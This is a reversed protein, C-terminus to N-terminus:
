ALQRRRALWLHLLLGAACLLAGTWILAGFGLGAIVGAMVPTGLTNGLNGMQAMAGNARARDAMDSNLEPVLAFTAGQILGFAAALAYATVSSVGTAWLLVFCLACLAFGLYVVGAARLLPMLWVGLTMSAIISILPMLGIVQQRQDPDLFPPILTLTSLFCFTYFFWGLGPAAVRSSQYLTLHREFLGIRRTSTTSGTNHGRLPRALILAFAAMWLAHVAFLAPIGQAAVLPLGLWVLLTYAVGFFTGWLTLALGRYRESSLSAILTPTAVVIALHSVGELARLALLVPYPPMLAQLASIVAGGWLAWILATRYGVRSVLDGSVVGLVIGVFGVVSVILGLWVEAVPYHTALQDYVVSVKAYQGAAGLGAGWLAMVLFLPSVPRTMAASKARSPGSPWIETLM